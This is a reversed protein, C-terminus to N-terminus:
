DMKRQDVLLPLQPPSSLHNADACVQLSILHADGMSIVHAPSKKLVEAYARLRREGAELVRSLQPKHAKLDDWNYLINQLLPMAFALTPTGEDSLLQQAEAGCQHRFTILQYWLGM